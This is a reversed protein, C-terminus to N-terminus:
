NRTLIFINTSLFLLCIDQALKYETIKLKGFPLLPIEHWRIRVAIVYQARITASDPPHIRLELHLWVVYNAKGIHNLWLQIVWEDIGFPSNVNFNRPNFQEISRLIERKQSERSSSNSGSKTYLLLKYAIKERRRGKNLHFIVDSNEVELIITNKIVLPDCM